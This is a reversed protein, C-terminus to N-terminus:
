GERIVFVEITDGAVLETKTEIRIGFEVGEEVKEARVKGQQLELITGHGIEAERRFIKVKAKSELTGEQVKGGAVYANKTNSFVRKIKARAIMKEIKIRPKRKEIEEELWQSMKYIIDFTQIPTKNRLAIEEVGRAPSVHFGIIITDESGSALRVDNETVDGVGSTLINLYVNAYKKQLKQIEHLIGDYSGVTDTKILLPILTMTRTDANYELSRPSLDEESSRNEAILNEAEKKKSVTIFSAGVKPLKNFGIIKIPSSFTAENIPNGAFDEMMRIPSFADGSLVCEGKKLAGNKILITAGMGKQPDMESDLIIGRASLALDGTFEEVEALFLIMELLEDVGQGTKSSIEVCSIDGGYGEIYIGNEVLSSKAREVSAEPKDVKSLAVVFPTQTEKISEYAELTQTKVGDDAAVVLIAIDAVTAGRSRATAFAEHGPTDIFTIREEKGENTKHLVEYASVHQTIGGAETDVVKTKRICDLLSSKGHDIHGMVAVM